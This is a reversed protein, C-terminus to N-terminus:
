HFSMIQVVSPGRDGSIDKIHTTSREHFRRFHASFSMPPSVNPRTTIIEGGQVTRTFTPMVLVGDQDMRGRVARRVGGNYFDVKLKSHLRDNLRSAVVVKM